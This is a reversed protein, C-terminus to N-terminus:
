DPIKIKEPNDIVFQKFDNYIENIGDIHNKDCGLGICSNRYNAIAILACRDKARLVFVPENNKRASELVSEASKKM